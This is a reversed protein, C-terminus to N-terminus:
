ESESSDVVASMNCNIAWVDYVAHELANLAPSSALMWGTFVRVRTGDALVDDVELFIYTEPTEEPPRTYCYRATIWLTGFAVKRGLPLKLETIRATIKDLAGVVGTEPKRLQDEAAVGAPLAGLIAALLLAKLPFANM